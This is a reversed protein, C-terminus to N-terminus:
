TKLCSRRSLFCAFWAYFGGWSKILVGKLHNRLQTSGHAEYFRVLRFDIGLRLSLSLSLSLSQSRRRLLLFSLRANSTWVSISFPMWFNHVYFFRLTTAKVICYFDVSVCFFKEVLWTSRIDTMGSSFSGQSTHLLRFVGKPASDLFSGFSRYRAGGGRVPTPWQSFTVGIREPVSLLSRRGTMSWLGAAKRYRPAAFKAKTGKDWQTRYRM